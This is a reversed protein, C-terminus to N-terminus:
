SLRSLDTHLGAAPGAGEAAPMVSAAWGRIANRASDLCRRGPGSGRECTQKCTQECICSSPM